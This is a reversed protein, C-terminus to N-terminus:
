PRWDDRYGPRDAYPLALLSLLKGALDDHGNWEGEILQDTQELAPFLYGLMQRKADIEREIRGPVGCDCPFPGNYGAVPISECGMAHWDELSQNVREDEDLQARLWQVLDDM